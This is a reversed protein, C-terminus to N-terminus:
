LNLIVLYYNATKDAKFNGSEQAAPHLRDLLFLKGKVIVAWMWKSMSLHFKLSNPSYMISCEHVSTMVEHSVSALAWALLSKKWAALNFGQPQLIFSM